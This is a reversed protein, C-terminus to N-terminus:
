DLEFREGIALFRYVGEKKGQAVWNPVFNVEAWEQGRGEVVPQWQEEVVRAVM